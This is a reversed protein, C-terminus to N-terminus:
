VTEEAKCAFLGYITEIGLLLAYSSVYLIVPTTVKVASSSAPMVIGAVGAEM